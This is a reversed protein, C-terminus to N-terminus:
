YREEIASIIFSEFRKYDSIESDIADVTVDEYGNAILGTQSIYTNNDLFLLYLKKNKSITYAILKMFDQMYESPSIIIVCASVDIHNKSESISYINKNILSYIDVKAKYTRMVETICDHLKFINDDIKNHKKNSKMISAIIYVDYYEM